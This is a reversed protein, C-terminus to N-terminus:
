PLAALFRLVVPMGQGSEDNLVAPHRGGPLLVVRADPAAAAVRRAQAATTLRDGESAIVIVPAAIGPMRALNEFRHRLLWDTPLWPYAEAALAAVSTFPSELIVAVIDPRGEALRTVVGTGISEGWLAVPCDPFRQHIWDLLTAADRAFAAEAPSGPNGGYGRYEALVVGYGANNLAAGLHIRDEASGGNGHFHLIIPRATTGTAVLMALELGDTSRFTERSWGPPAVIPGGAPRFILHEQRAWISGGVLFPVAMALGLLILVRRM